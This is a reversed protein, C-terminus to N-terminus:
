ERQPRVEAALKKVLADENMHLFPWNGALVANVADPSNPRALGDEIVISYGLLYFDGDAVQKLFLVYRGRPTLGCCKPSAMFSIFMGNPLSISGGPEFVDIAKGLAQSGASHIVKDIAIHMESYIARHLPTLIEDFDKFVGVVVTGQILGPPIGDSGAPPGPEPHNSYSLHKELLEEIPMGAGYVKEAYADRASRILREPQTTPIPESPRAERQWANTPGQGRSSAALAAWILTVRALRISFNMEM